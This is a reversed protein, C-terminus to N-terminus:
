NPQTPQVKTNSGEVSDIQNLIVTDRVMIVLDIVILM